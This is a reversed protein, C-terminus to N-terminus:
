TGGNRRYGLKVAEAKWYESTRLNKAKDRSESAVRILLARIEENKGAIVAGFGGDRWQLSMERFLENEAKLIANDEAYKKVTEELEEIREQPSLDNGNGNNMMELIAPPIYELQEAHFAENDSKKAKRSMIKEGYSSGFISISQRGM